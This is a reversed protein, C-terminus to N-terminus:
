GQIYEPTVGLVLFLYLEIELPNSLEFPNRYISFALFRAGSEKEM